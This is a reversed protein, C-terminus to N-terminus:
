GEKKCIYLLHSSSGLLERKECTALHLKFFLDFEEDSMEFDNREEALELVSDVAVTTLYNVKHMEFLREFEVIDYGTFLQKEFHKVKYSADFNEEIGAPLNGNLYNSYMIAYVSLFAVLVIGDEKTVRIAENIAKNVDEKDYLHYLPGFLLTVDFQNDKFSSLNLADGQYSDMNKIGSSNKRLVELNKEVLEIATVEYGEKALAISYRGTGAGIELVKEGSKIYRHIYEMTTAYELQGHRSRNLRSDEDIDDYFTSVIEIRKSM